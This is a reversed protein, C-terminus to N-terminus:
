EKDMKKTMKSFDKSNLKKSKQIINSEKEWNLEM